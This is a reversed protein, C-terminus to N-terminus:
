FPKRMIFKPGDVKLPISKAASIEDAAKIVGPWAPDYDDGILIGGPQLLELYETTDRYVEEYEHAADVHVLTPLIKNARLIQAAAVSTQPIPIIYNHLQRKYVNNLFREYIDPMGGPKRNYLPPGNPDRKPNWHGPCGLFTDVALVVGNIKKDRLNSALHITSQGKWVGVDVIIQFDFSKELLHLSSHTGNWGQLDLLDLNLEFNKWIDGGYLSLMIDYYSKM